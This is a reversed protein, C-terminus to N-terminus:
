KWWDCASKEGAVWVIDGQLFRFDPKPNTEFMDGRLISIVMCGYSRMGVERLTKGALYSSESLTIAEVEFQVNDSPYPVDSELLIEKLVELQESTGVAVLKDMPYLVEDGSPILISRSGRMIKVINAKAKHRFPMERLTRGALTSDASLEYIVTHVNYRSLNDSVTATVPAMERARKEKENLNALFVNEFLSIRNLYKRAVFFFAVGAMLILLIMLFSLAFQSVIVYLVFGMAIFIRLLALAIVPWANADREKLLKDSSQAIVTGSVAINVLFPYMVLLTVLVCVLSQATSSWGPFLHVILKDLFLQSGLAIAALVVGYILVRTLYAKWLRRWENEAAATHTKDEMAGDVRNVFGVPLHTKLFEYAPDAAKIFVPTTFTTLVSVAIIIPYIFDRMVGTSCGLGAIIYSFEGLQAMSFGVHVANELGKGSLIVGTAAFLMIGAVAIVALIVITGWHAGIVKPDVMMGVSVFFIAGFLNKIGSVLHTIREGELTEALISGMVFAGLASSFGVLEALAVMGFCLGIAVILMIEDSLYEHAKKLLMPIFFIGVVFWLVIFFALKVIGMLMAGGAFKHSVALTSLLVLMLVAIMDEIVLSGFIMGAYPKNKIGMEDYAKIIITTSSMSLLGGLFVSEMISWSMLKGTILGTVFMGICITLATICACSGVQIMKKFSFELGLAFLLFIIGIESWQSVTEVNSLASFLGLHPGVIFGAVIYGLILPQKLIKSLLTFVGAAVLILALEAVLNVEGSM